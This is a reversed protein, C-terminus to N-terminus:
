ASPSKRSNKSLLATKCIVPLADNAGETFFVGKFSVEGTSILSKASKNYVFWHWLLM